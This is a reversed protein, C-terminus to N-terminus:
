ATLTEALIYIGHLQAIAYGLPAARRRQAQAAVSRARRSADAICRPTPAARQEDVRLALNSQPM